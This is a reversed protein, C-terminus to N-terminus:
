ACGPEGLVVGTGLTQGDSIQYLSPREIRSRETAISGEGDISMRMAVSSRKRLGGAPRGLLKAGSEEYKVIVQFVIAGGAEAPVPLIRYEVREEGVVAPSVFEQHWQLKDSSV